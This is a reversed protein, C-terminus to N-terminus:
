VDGDESYIEHPMCLWRDCGMTEHCAVGNIFCANCDSCKVKLAKRKM